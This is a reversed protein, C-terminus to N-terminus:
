LSLISIHFTCTFHSLCTFTFPVQGADFDPILRRCGKLITQMVDATSRSPTAPDHIDAATPGLILNGWLTKQVLIGKGMKGPCPFLIKNCKGGQNKNLLLYEGIRPKIYFSDDGVLKAIKDSGLGACNVVHRARITEITSNPASFLVFYLATTLVLGVSLLVLVHTSVQLAVSALICFM